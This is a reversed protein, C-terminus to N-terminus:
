FPEFSVPLSAYGQVFDTVLREARDLEVRYEPIRKLAEELCIRGELKAAHIGLCLHTGHGFSLIRPPKRHIDFGDPNEFERPDRNASPYLFLVPQGTKMTEGHIEVDRKLTRCLFQTPMDYRLVEVFADPLLSADAACEARQDPHEGLWRMCNAFVKPFTESGGIILMSLHSAIAEDPLKRGGVETETLLQVIDDAGGSRRRDQILRHFYGFLEEMAKLGDPTMGEIGPERKFFRFVLDNLLDADALPIGTITCAVTVSIRSSFDGMVDIEGRDRAADLLKGALERVMPELKGVRGPLFFPRFKARLETHEPPDMLNLMPTVPQVKTLVHASTTGRAASYSDADMSAQWIDEFRSLAWADYEEIYYAPAEERLRAYIPHPDRMVEESFPNYHVM